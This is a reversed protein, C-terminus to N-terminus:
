VLRRLATYLPGAISLHRTNPIHAELQMEFGDYRANWEAVDLNVNAELQRQHADKWAESWEAINAELHLPAMKARALIEAVAAPTLKTFSIHSWLCPLNLATDRWRGCVHTVRIWALYGAEDRDDWASSSLLFFIAALIELPLRSIPALANRRSKLARISQAEDL